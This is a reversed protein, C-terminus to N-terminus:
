IDNLIAISSCVDFGHFNLRHISTYYRNTYLDPMSRVHMAFSLWKLLELQAISNINDLLM